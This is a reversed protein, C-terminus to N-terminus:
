TARRDFLTPAIGELFNRAMLAYGEANPHLQDPLLHAHDPGFLSLGDFYHTNRDGHARLIEVAAAVEDRMEPLTMPAATPVERPPSLIPSIVALPTTPHKERLIRVFGIIAPRFTRRNLSGGHINIGVCMSIADAPLDRILRAIMSDLHCQGGFGLSTLNVNRSRAVIAPWTGTPSAAARCHTISSGYTIWRPRTDDPIRTLTAGADLALSRLRFLGFQPLWLEIRKNGAPLDGFRFADRDHLPRSAAPQNDICLDIPAMEDGGPEISGEICRSDTDFVLRVGSPMAARGILDQPQYLQREAFPLRWPATYDPTTELSVAGQWTLRPDDHAITQQNM